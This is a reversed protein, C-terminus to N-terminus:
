LRICAYRSTRAAYSRTPTAYSRYVRAIAPLLTSQKKEMNATLEELRTTLDSTLANPDNMRYIDLTALTQSQSTLGELAATAKMIHELLDAEHETDM